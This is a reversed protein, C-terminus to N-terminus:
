NEAIGLKSISVEYATRVEETGDDYKKVYDRSQIRGSVDVKAGIPLDKSYKAVRGWAICPLYSARSYRNVAIVLDTIERGLPTERNIPEKCIFGEFEIENAYEFDDEFVFSIEKAFVFLLVGNGTNKSRFEGKVIAKRGASVIDDKILYESCIVQLTDFTGSTRAIKIKSKYFKEDFVEHDLVFDSILEGSLTVLNKQIGRMKKYNREKNKNVQEKKQHIFIFLDFIM